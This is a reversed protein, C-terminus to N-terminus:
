EWIQHQWFKRLIRLTFEKESSTESIVNRPHYFIENAVIIIVSTTM